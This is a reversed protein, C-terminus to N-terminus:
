QLPFIIPAIGDPNVEAIVPVGTSIQMVGKDTLMKYINEAIEVENRGYSLVVMKEANRLIVQRLSAGNGHIVLEVSDYKSIHADLLKTINEPHRKNWTLLEIKESTIVALCQTFEARNSDPMGIGCMVQERSKIAATDIGQGVLDAAVDQAAMYNMSTCGPLLGLAVSAILLRIKGSQNIKREWGTLWGITPERQCYLGGKYLM